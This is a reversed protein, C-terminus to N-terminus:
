NEGLGEQRQCLSVFIMDMTAQGFSYAVIGGGESGKGVKSGSVEEEAHRSELRGELIEFVKGLGGLAIVEEPSVEYREVLNSYSLEAGVGGGIHDKQVANRFVDELVWRRAEKAREIHSSFSLELIYGQGFKTKLHQSSGLCALHGNILIGM